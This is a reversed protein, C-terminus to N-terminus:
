IVREIRSATVQILPIHHLVGIVQLDHVRVEAQVGTEALARLASNLHNVAAIVEEAQKSMKDAGKGMNGM